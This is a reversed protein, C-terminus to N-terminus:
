EVGVEDGFVRQASRAGSGLAEPRVHDTETDADDVVADDDVPQLRGGLLGISM